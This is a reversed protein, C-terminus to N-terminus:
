EEINLTLTVGAVYYFDRLVQENIQMRPTSGPSDLLTYDEAAVLFAPSAVRNMVLALPPASNIVANTIVVSANNSIAFPLNAIAQPATFTITQPAFGTLQYDRQLTFTQGSKSTVEFVM